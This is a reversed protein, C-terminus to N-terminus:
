IDTIEALNHFITQTFDLSADSFPLVEAVIGYVELGHSKAIERMKASPDVGIEIGLPAAFRGSGAGIEIGKKHDPTFENVKMGPCLM